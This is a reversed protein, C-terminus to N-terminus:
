RDPTMGETLRRRMDDVDADNRATLLLTAADIPDRLTLTMAERGDVVTAIREGVHRSTFAHLRPRAEDRLDIALARGDREPDRVVRVARVDGDLVLHDDSARLELRAPVDTATTAAGPSHACATLLALTAASIAFKRRIM